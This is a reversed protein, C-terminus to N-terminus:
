SVKLDMYSYLTKKSEDQDGSRKIKLSLSAKEMLSKNVPIFKSTTPTIKTVIHEEIKPIISIIPPKVIKYSKENKILNKRYEQITLPGGFINLVEKPPAVVIKKIKKNYTKMFLLHLLSYREWMDTYKKDFNYAAACNFSCFCGEVYFKNKILKIPLPVPPTDFACCCWLCHTDVKVPWEKKKNADYFTYNTKLVNTKTTLITEMDNYDDNEDNNNTDEQVKSIENNSDDSKYNELKSYNGINSPEYPKPENENPNYDIVDSGGINENDKIDSSKIPIHLIINNNLSCLNTKTADAVSYVKQKPKRGRKKPIKNILDKSTKQKPKRGRKKLVKVETSPPKPKRGRKKPIKVEEPKKCKKEIISKITTPQSINDQAKEM